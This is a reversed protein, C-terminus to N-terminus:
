LYPNNFHSKLTYFILIAFHTICQLVPIFSDQYWYFIVFLCRSQAYAVSRNLFMHFFSIPLADHLSLTYIDPTPTSHFSFFLISYYVLSFSSSLCIYMHCIYDSCYE